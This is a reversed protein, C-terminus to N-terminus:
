LDIRFEDTEKSNGGESYESLAEVENEKIDPAGSVQPVLEPSLSDVRFLNKVSKCDAGCEPCNGLRVACAEHYQVGCKCNLVPLGPKIVGMCIKCLVAEMTGTITAADEASEGEAPTKSHLVISGQCRPCEEIRDACTPHFIKGCNCTIVELGPKVVGMCIGCMIAETATSLKPGTSSEAIDEAPLVPVLSIGCKPCVGVREGCSRHLKNGCSCTMIELGPKVVGMCIGCMIAETATSIVPSGAPTVEPPEDPPAEEPKEGPLRDEMIAELMIDLDELGDESGDWVKLRYKYKEWLRILLFRMKERLEPPPTGHFVVALYMGVGRELFITMKGYQLTKLAGSDEKFSDKIFDTIATLMGSMIDEDMNERLQTEFSLSKVLRGDVYVLFLDSIAFGKDIGIIQPGHSVPLPESHSPPSPGSEPKIIESQPVTPSEAVMPAVSEGTPVGIIQSESVLNPQVTSQTLPSASPRNSPAPRPQIWTDNRRSYSHKVSPALQGSNDFSSISQVDTEQIKLNGPRQEIGVAKAAENPATSKTKSRKQKKVLIIIIIIVVGVVLTISVLILYFWTNDSTESVTTINGPDTDDDSKQQESLIDVRVTINEVGGPHVAEISLNYKGATINSTNSIAVQIRSSEEPSLIESRTIDVFGKIFGKTILNVTVPLNGKNSLTINFNEDVGYQVEVESFKPELTIEYIPQFDKDIKFFRVGSLCRGEKAGSLPLVTWYYTMGEPLDTLLYSADATTAIEVLNNKSPGVIIRYMLPNWIADANEWTLKVETNNFVMGDMPTLLKLEPSESEVDVTFSYTGSGCTGSLEGDHPLVYWYYTVDSELSGVTIGRPIDTRYIGPDKNQDMYLDYSIEEQSNDPDYTEFSLIVNELGSVAGDAPSILRVLPADNVAKVTVPITINQLSRVRGSINQTYLEISTEGFYDTSPIISIRLDEELRVSILDSSPIAMPEIPDGDGDFIHDILSWDTTYNIDEQLVISPPTSIWVPPDDENLVMIQFQSSRTELGYVNTCTVYLSITGSYNEVLKAIHLEEGIVELILNTRDTLNELTFLSPEIRHYQDYFHDSFNLLKSVNTEESIPFDTIDTLLQPSEPISWNVAWDYLVPSFTHNSIFNAELYITPHERANISGALELYTTELDTRDGFLREGTVADHVSINLFTNEPVSRQIRLTNWIYPSSLRIIDSRLTVNSYENEPLARGGSISIGVLFDNMIEEQSRAVDSLRIEDIDGGFFYRSESGTMRGISFPSMSVTIHRDRVDKKVRRVGDVWLSMETGSYRAAVYHWTGIIHPSQWEVTDGNAPSELFHINFIYRINNSSNVTTMLNYSGMQADRGKSAVTGMNRWDEGVYPATRRIWAGITFNGDNHLSPSDPVEVYNTSGNFKMGGAFRGIVRNGVNMNKMTGDNNNGSQDIITNGDEENFHWLGVTDPDTKGEVGGGCMGQGTFSDRWTSSRIWQVGWSEMSPSQRGNSSFETKLRISDVDMDNLRSLNVNPVTLNELGVIASGTTTDLISFKIETGMPESMIASFDDWYMGESLTVPISTIFPSPEDMEAGYIITPHNSYKRIFWHDFQWEGGGNAPNNGWKLYTPPLWSFTAGASDVQQVFFYRSVAPSSINSLGNIEDAALLSNNALNWWEYSVRDSRYNIKFSLNHNPDPKPVYNFQTVSSNPGNNISLRIPVLTNKAGDSEKMSWQVLCHDVDDWLSSRNSSWGMVAWDWAGKNWSKMRFKTSLVRDFSQSTTNEWYTHHNNDQDPTGHLWDGTNDATWHDFYSFVRTGNSAPDAHPNGYKLRIQSNGSPINSVNVWVRSTGSSNWEEIWYNLNKDTSDTFRIDDGHTDAKLYDFNDITLTVNLPYNESLGGNNIITIQKKYMWLDTEAKGDGVKMGQTQNIGSADDFDDLWSGGMEDNEVRILSRVPGSNAPPIDELDPTFEEMSEFPIVSRPTKTTIESEEFKEKSYFHFSGSLQILLMLIFCVSLIRKM